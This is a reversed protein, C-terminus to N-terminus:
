HLSTQDGKLTAFTGALASAHPFDHFCEFLGTMAYDLPAFGAAGGQTTGAVAQTAVAAPSSGASSAPNLPAAGAHAPRVPASRESRRPPM